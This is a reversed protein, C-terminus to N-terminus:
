VTIKNIISKKITNRAKLRRRLAIEKNYAEESLSKKLLEENDCIIASILDSSSARQRLAEITHSCNNIIDSIEYLRAKEIIQIIESSINHEIQARLSLEHLKRWIIRSRICIESEYKKYDRKRLSSFYITDYQDYNSTKKPLNDTEDHKYCKIVSSGTLRAYEMDNLPDSPTIYTVKTTISSEALFSERCLGFDSVIRDLLSNMDSVAIGTYASVLKLVDAKEGCSSCKFVHSDSYAWCSGLHQDNHFPCLFVITKNRVKYKSSYLKVVDPITLADKIKTKDLYKM